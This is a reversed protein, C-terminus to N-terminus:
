TGGQYEAGVGQSTNLPLHPQYGCPVLCVNPESLSSTHSTFHADSLFLPSIHFICLNYKPLVNFLSTERASSAEQCLSAYLPDHGVTFPWKAQWKSQFINILQGSIKKWTVIM